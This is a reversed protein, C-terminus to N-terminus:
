GLLTCAECQLGRSVIFYDLVRESPKCTGMNPTVVVADLFGLLGSEEIASASCNFDGAIVFPCALMRLRLAVRRLIDYNVFGLESGTELYVNAWALSWSGMSLALVMARGAELVPDGGVECAGL